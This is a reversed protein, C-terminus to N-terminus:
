VLSLVNSFNLRGFAIICFEESQSSTRPLKLRTRERCTFGKALEIEIDVGTAVVRVQLGRSM